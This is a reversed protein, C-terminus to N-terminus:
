RYSFSVANFVVLFHLLEKDDLQKVDFPADDIWHTMHQQTFSAVFADLHEDVIHVHQSHQVVFACTELIRNM